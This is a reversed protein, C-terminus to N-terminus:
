PVDTSVELDISSAAHTRLRQRARHLRTRATEAPIGLVQAAASPSLQEWAVLLLVDREDDRLALLADHLQHLEREADVRSGVDLMPEGPLSPRADVRELAAIGRRRDRLERRVVNTAIGYLWPRADRVATDFAGRREFAIRFVEATVDDAVSPGVRAAAFRYIAGAHRDFIRAFRAPESVSAGIEAGDATNVGM